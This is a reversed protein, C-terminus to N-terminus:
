YLDTHQYINSLILVMKLFTEHAFLDLDIKVERLTSVELENTILITRNKSYRSSEKTKEVFSTQCNM